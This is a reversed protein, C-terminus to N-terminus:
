DKLARELQMRVGSTLQHRMLKLTAAIRSKEARKVYETAATSALSDTFTPRVFTKPEFATGSPEPRGKITELQVTVWYAMNPTSRLFQELKDLDRSALAQKLREVRTRALKLDERLEARGYVYARAEWYAPFAARDLPPKVKRLQLKNRDLREPGQRTPRYPGPNSMQEYRYVVKEDDLILKIGSPVPIYTRGPIYRTGRENWKLFILVKTTKVPGKQDIPIRSYAQTAIPIVDGAKVSDKGKHVHTIRLQGRQWYDVTKYGLEEGEVVVEAAYWLSALDTDQMIRAHARHVLLAPLILAFVYLATAPRSQM